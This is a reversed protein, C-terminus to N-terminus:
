TVPDGFVFHNRKGEKTEREEKENNEQPCGAMQKRPLAPLGPEEIKGEPLKLERHSTQGRGQYKSLIDPKKGVESRETKDKLCFGEGGDGM